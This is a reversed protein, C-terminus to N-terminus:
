PLRLTFRTNVGGKASYVSLTTQSEPDRRCKLRDRVCKGTPPSSVLHGIQHWVIRELKGTTESKCGVVGSVSARPAEIAKGPCLTLSLALHRAGRVVCGTGEEWVGHPRWCTFESLAM